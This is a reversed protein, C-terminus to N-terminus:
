VVYPKPSADGMRDRQERGKCWTSSEEDEV